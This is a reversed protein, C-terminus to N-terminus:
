RMKQRKSWTRLRYLLPSIGACLWTSKPTKKSFDRFAAPRCLTLFSFFIQFVRIIQPTIIM